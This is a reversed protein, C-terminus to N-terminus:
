DLWVRAREPPVTWGHWRIVASGALASTSTLWNTDKRFRVFVGLAGQDTGEALVVEDGELFLTPVPRNSIM